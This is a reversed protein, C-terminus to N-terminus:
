AELHMKGAEIKSYDLINNIISMLSDGSRYIMNVYHQQTDNLETDKLMEAMGIIGNMPTRIEHSMTAIFQSKAKSAAEAEVILKRSALKEEKEAVLALEIKQQREIDNLLTE